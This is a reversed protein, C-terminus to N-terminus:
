IEKREVAAILLSTLESEKQYAEVEWWREMYPISATFANELDDCIYQKVHTLEHALTVIMDGINEQEKLVIMYDDEDNRYCAGGIKITEDTFIHLNQPIAIGLADCFFKVVSGFFDENLNGEIILPM